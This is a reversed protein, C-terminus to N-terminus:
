APDTVVVVVGVMGKGKVGHITCVYEYRGPIDFLMTYKAKPGFLEKTVGWGQFPSEPVPLVDHDNRGVNEFMVSTGAEVTLEAQRFTNDLSEVRVTKGNSPVKAPGAPDAKTGCSSGLGVVVTVFAATTMKRVM